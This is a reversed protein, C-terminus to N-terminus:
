TNKYEDNPIWKGKLPNFNFYLEEYVHHIGHIGITISFMLLVVLSTTIDKSIINYNIIAIIISVFILLGSLMGIIFSPRM